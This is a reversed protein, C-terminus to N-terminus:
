PNLRAMGLWRPFAAYPSFYPGPDGSWTVIVASGMARVASASVRPSRAIPFPPVTVNLADDLVM